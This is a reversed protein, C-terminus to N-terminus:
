RKKINRVKESSAGSEVTFNLQSRRREWGEYITVVEHVLKSNPIVLKEGDRILQVTVSRVGCRIVDAQKGWLEIKTGELVVRSFFLSLGAILDTM